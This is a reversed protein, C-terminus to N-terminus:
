CVCNINTVPQVLVVVNLRYLHIGCEILFTSHFAAKITTTQGRQWGSRVAIVPCMYRCVNTYKHLSGSMGVCTNPTTEFVLSHGLYSPFALCSQRMNAVVGVTPFFVVKDSFIPAKNFPKKTWNALLNEM